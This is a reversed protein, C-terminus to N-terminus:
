ALALEMNPINYNNAIKSNITENFEKEHVIYKFEIHVMLIDENIMIKMSANSNQIEHKKIGLRESIDLIEISVPINDKDFDLIVGDELEISRGFNFDDKVTITFIDLPYDYETNIDFHKIM